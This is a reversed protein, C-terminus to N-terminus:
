FTIAQTSVLILALIELIASFCEKISNTTLTSLIYQALSFLHKM